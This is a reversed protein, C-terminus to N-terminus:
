EKNIEKEKNKEKIEDNLAKNGAKVTENFVRKATNGIKTQNANSRAEIAKDRAEIAKNNHRISNSRNQAINETKTAKREAELAVKETKQVAKDSFRANVTHSIGATAVNIVMQEPSNPKLEKTEPTYDYVADLLIALGKFFKNGGSTVAATVLSTIDINNWLADEISDGRIIGVTAQVLYDVGIAILPILFVPLRGDSDIMNVPDGACYSYPNIPFYKEALPDQTTWRPVIPDYHRAGFDLIRLDSTGIAAGSALDLAQGLDEKGSFM